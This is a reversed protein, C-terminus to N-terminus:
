KEFYGKSLAPLPRGERLREAWDQHLATCAAEYATKGKEGAKILMRQEADSPEDKGAPHRDLLSLCSAAEQGFPETYWDEPPEQATKRLLLWNGAQTYEWGASVLATIMTTPTDGEYLKPLDTAYLWAEDLSRRIAPARYGQQETLLAALEKRLANRVM